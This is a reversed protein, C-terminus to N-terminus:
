PALRNSGPIPRGRCLSPIPIQRLETSGHTIQMRGWDKKLPEFILASIERHGLHLPSEDYVPIGDEAEDITPFASLQAQTHPM